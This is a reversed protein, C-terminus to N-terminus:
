HERGFHGAFSDDHHRGILETRIIEPVYSLGQHHLIGEVDEWGDLM